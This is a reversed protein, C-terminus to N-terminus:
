FSEQARSYPARSSNADRREAPSRHRIAYTCSSFTYQLEIISKEEEDSINAADAIAAPISKANNYRVIIFVKAAFFGWPATCLIPFRSRMTRRTTPITNSAHAISVPQLQHNTNKEPNQKKSAANEHHPMYAASPFFVHGIGYSLEANDPINTRRQNTPIELRWM